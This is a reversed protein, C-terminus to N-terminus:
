SRKWGGNVNIIQGNIFAAAPSALFRAAQAIDAPTGWRGVLSERQARDQWADSANEGWTTKVWGPALCNVRVEPALSQALSRTFAMVAGKTAAFLEGSDGAMGQEAQDWGLNLITGFGRQKMRAGAMRALRVTALVDVRWLHHLKKEFPWRAPEGTLVDAGANNVWIDVDGRWKWARRILTDPGEDDALDVTVADTEVGLARAEEAVQQAAADNQGAHILCAAGAAALELAIARGIGSSSGTVVATLGALESAHAM